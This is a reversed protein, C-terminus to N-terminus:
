NKEVYKKFNNLIAQWGNQQMDVPNESEAEFSELITTTNGEASFIIRVNRGDIMIYSILHFLKVDTYVGEIEFGMSGDKAEMRCKFKGGRRLDNEAWPTHWDDSAYNWNIIHEPLTWYNWVKDVSAYVTTQVKVITKVKTTM